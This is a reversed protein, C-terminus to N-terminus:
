MEFNVIKNTGQVMKMAGKRSIITCHVTKMAGHFRNMTGRVMKMAGM